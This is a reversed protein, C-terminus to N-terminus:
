KISNRLANHLAWIWEMAEFDSLDCGKTLNASFQEHDEGKHMPEHLKGIVPIAKKQMDLQLPRPWYECIRKRLNVFWQCAIDYGIIILGVEVFHSLTSGFVYDM